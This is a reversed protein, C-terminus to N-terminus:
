NGPVASGPKALEGREYQGRVRRLGPTQAVGPAFISGPASSSGATPNVSLTQSGGCVNRSGAPLKRVLTFLRDRRGNLTFTILSASLRIRGRARSGDRALGRRRRGHAG